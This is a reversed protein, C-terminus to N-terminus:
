RELYAVRMYTIEDGRVVIYNWQRRLIQSSPSMKVDMIRMDGTEAPKEVAIERNEPKQSPTYHAVYGKIYSGDTLRLHVWPAKGAPVDRRFIDFWIGGSTMQGRWRDCLWNPMWGTLRRPLQALWSPVSHVLLVLALALGVQLALSWGVISYHQSVYLKENRIFEGPDFLFRPWRMRLLAFIGASVGTFVLSMLVTRSAERFASQELAPNRREWLLQYALGPAILALFLILSVLSQPIM